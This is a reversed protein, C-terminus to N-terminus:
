GSITAIKLLARSKEADKTATIVSCTSVGQDTTRVTFTASAVFIGGEVARGPPLKVSRPVTAQPNSSALQVIVTDTGAPEVFSVTGTVSQGGVASGSSLRVSLHSSSSNVPKVFLTVSRSGSGVISATITPCGATGSGSVAKFLGSTGNAAISISSPVKVIGTNSSLLNVTTATPSQTIGVSGGAVDGGDIEGPTLTLSSVSPTALVAPALLLGVV